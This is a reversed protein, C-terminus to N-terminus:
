ASVVDALYTAHSVEGIYRAIEELGYIHREKTSSITSDALVIPRFGLMLAHLASYKVCVHSQTGAFILTECNQNRLWEALDTEFFASYTHKNQIIINPGSYSKLKHHLPIASPEAICHQHVYVLERDSPAHVDKIYVIPLNSSAFVDIFKNINGNIHEAQEESILTEDGVFPGIMDVILLASRVIKKTYLIDLSNIYAIVERRSYGSFVVKKITMSKPNNDIYNKVANIIATASLRAPLRGVGAGMLCIAVSQINRDDLNHLLHLIAAAIIEVNTSDIPKDMISAYGISKIGRTKLNFPKLIVSRGRPIPAQGIGEQELSYGAAEKVAGSVGGRMMGQSNGSVAICEVECDLINGESIAIEIGKYKGFHALIMILVLNFNTDKTCHPM